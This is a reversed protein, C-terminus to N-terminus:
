PSSARPHRSAGDIVLLKPAWKTEFWFPPESQAAKLLVRARMPSANCSTVTTLLNLIVPIRDCRLMFLAGRWGGTEM